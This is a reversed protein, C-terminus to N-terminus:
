IQAIKAHGSCPCSFDTSKHLVFIAMKLKKKKNSFEHLLNKTTGMLFM